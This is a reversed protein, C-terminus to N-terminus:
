YIGAFALWHRVTCAETRWELDSHGVVGDSSRIGNRCEHQEKCLVWKGILIAARQASRDLLRQHPAFHM